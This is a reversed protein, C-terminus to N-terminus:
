TGLEQTQPGATNRPRNAGGASADDGAAVLEQAYRIVAREETFFDKGEVGQPVGHRGLPALAKAAPTAASAKRRVQRASRDGHEQLAVGLPM